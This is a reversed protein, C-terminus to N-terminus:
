GGILSTNREGTSGAATIAQVRLGPLRRRAPRKGEAGAHAARRRSSSSRPTSHVPTPKAVRTSRYVAPQRKLVTDVPRHADLREFVSPHPLIWEPPPLVRHRSSTAGLGSNGEEPEGQILLRLIYVEVEHDFEDGNEDSVDPPPLLRLLDPHTDWPCPSSARSPPSARPNLVTPTLGNQCDMQCCGRRTRVLWSAGPGRHLMQAPREQRSRRIGSSTGNKSSVRWIDNIETRSPPVVL